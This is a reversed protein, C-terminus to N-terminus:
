LTKLTLEVYALHIKEDSYHESIIKKLPEDVDWALAEGYKRNTLEENSKMATLAAKTGMAAMIATFGEIFFGKVDKKFAPPTEGRDKMVKSLTEVHKLHDNKYQTLKQKVEPLDIRKIASDYANSADIDLQILSALQKTLEKTALM